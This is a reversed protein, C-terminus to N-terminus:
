RLQSPPETSLAEATPTIFRLLTVGKKGGDEVYVQYFAYDEFTDPLELGLKEEALYKLNARSIQENHTSLLEYHRTLSLEYSKDLQDTDENTRLITDMNLFYSLVYAFFVLIFLVFLKRSM